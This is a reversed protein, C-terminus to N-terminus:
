KCDDTIKVVAADLVAANESAFMAIGKVPKGEKLIGTTLAEDVTDLRFAKNDPSYAKLCLTSLNVDDGSLKVVAVEFSKTYAMKSGVSISGNSQATAYVAINDPTSANATFSFGALAMTAVIMSVKM